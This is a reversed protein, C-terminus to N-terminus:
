HADAAGGAKALAADVVGRLKRAAAVADQQGFIASVVAIGAAHGQLVVEETNHAGVGGIAVVPVPAIAKCVAALGEIGIM